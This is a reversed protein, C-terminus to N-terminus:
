GMEKLRKLPIFKLFYIHGGSVGKMPPDLPYTGREQDIRLVEQFPRLGGEGLVDRAGESVDSRIGWSAIISTGTTLNSVGQYTTCYFLPM